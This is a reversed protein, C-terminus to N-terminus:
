SICFNNIYFFDIRALDSIGINLYVKKAYDYIRKTASKSIQAPIILSVSNNRYKNEFNYFGNNNKIEGLLVDLSSWDNYVAILIKLKM